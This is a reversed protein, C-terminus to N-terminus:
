YHTDGSYAPFSVRCYKASVTVTNLRMVTETDTQSIITAGVIMKEPPALGISRHRNKFITRRQHLDVSNLYQKLYYQRLM